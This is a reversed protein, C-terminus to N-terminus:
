GSVAMLREGFRDVKGPEVGPVSHGEGSKLSSESGGMFAMTEQIREARGWDSWYVGSLEMMNLQQPILSLLDSSFNRTPMTRYLNMLIQHESSTGIGCSIKELPWVVEPICQRGAEWLTQVHAICVLTNWQGEGEAIETLQSDVPKEVFRRVARVKLGGPHLFRTGPLVWGYDKEESQPPVTVLM